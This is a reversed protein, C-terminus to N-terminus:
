KAPRFWWAVPRSTRLAPAVGRCLYWCGGRAVTTNTVTGEAIVGAEADSGVVVTAGSGILTSSASGGLVDLVAGSDLTTADASGGYVAISGGGVVSTGSAIGSYVYAAGGSSVITAYAAGSYLYEAGGSNVTTGSAIGSVNLYGGSDVKTADAVGGSFVVMVDGSTLTIGSSTVGSSVNTYSM